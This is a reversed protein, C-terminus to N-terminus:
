IVFIPVIFCSIPVCISSKNWLLYTCLSVQLDLTLIVSLFLLFVDFHTMALKDELLCWAIGHSQCRVSCNYCFNPFHCCHLLIFCVSSCFRLLMAATEARVAWCGQNAYILFSCCVLHLAQLMFRWCLSVQLCKGTANLVSAWLLLKPFSLRFLQQSCGKAIFPVVSM